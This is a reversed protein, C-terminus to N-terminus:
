RPTEMPPGEDEATRETEPLAGNPDGPAPTNLAQSASLKSEDFPRRVLLPRESRVAKGYAIFELFRLNPIVKVHDQSYVNALYGLSTQDILSHTFYTNCQSLITKSVLATRQSVVLLGVGYKRGQLAIQGIRGVVWQTDYDFGSGATEPIITHAEELVIMIRRQKRHARAWGMIESLFLETTRLTARTNTVEALEFLGLWETDSELFEAVHTTVRGKVTDIFTKLAKKEDKAGYNGTEVDFLLTDLKSTESRTLGMAKPALDGLRKRYEGTLDVCFVKTKQAVAERIVDLALETKGTGTVGLIACHYEVLDPLHAKLAIDTSPITGIPFEGSALQVSASLAGTLRFVPTNMSPLWPFKKFGALPDVTGLQAAHVIHTGRPNQRFSEEATQADLIQYFVRGTPLNCFVVTGEELGNDRAAEFHISSISSGEVVFGVMEVAEDGGVLEGILRPLADEDTCEYVEGTETQDVELSADGFCIGTAVLENEQVQTSLPLVYTVRGGPLTAVHARDEAWPTQATLTVRVINPHDVRQVLGVLPLASKRRMFGALRMAIQLLVEVPKLLAFGFWLALLLAVDDTDRYFGFISIFAVAGFLLEGRALLNALSFFLARWHEGRGGRELFAALGALVASLTAYIMVISVAPVVVHRLNTVTALDLTFLFVLVALAASLADRPPRYWPASILSLGWFGLASLFWLSEGGGSPRLQGTVWVYAGYFIASNIAFAVFRWKQRLFGSTSSVAM